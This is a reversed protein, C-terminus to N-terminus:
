RGAPCVKMCIGCVAGRGIHQYAKKMWSSCKQPHFVARDSEFGIADAPCADVCLRCHTCTEALIGGAHGSVAESCSAAFAHGSVSASEASGGAHGSVSASEASGGAHGSVAESCSAAFAHGSVSASEASGGAHGCVAEADGHVVSHGRVAVPAALEPWDTFLTALRVRPGWRRHLFLGSRGMSGLGALCAAKKHSYRGEFPSDPSSQSAAVAIYSAGEAQVHLGAQLSLRDLFANATRYHHFYTYTPETEIEDIVADSLRVAISVAWPLGGPGDSVRTWSVDSAGWSRLLSAFDDAKTKM